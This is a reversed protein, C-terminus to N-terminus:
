LVPTLMEFLASFHIDVCQCLLTGILFAFRLRQAISNLALTARSDILTPYVM